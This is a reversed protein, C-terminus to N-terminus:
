AIDRGETVKLSIIVDDDQKSIQVVEKFDENSLNNQISPLAMSRASILLRIYLCGKECKTNILIADLSDVCDEVIQEFWEYVAIIMEAAYEVEGSYSFAVRAGAIRLYESSEMIANNLETSTIRGESKLLEMNCRRKIYAYIVAIRKINKEFGNEEALLTQVEELQPTVVEAMRDYIRSRAEIEAKEKKTQNESHLHANRSQLKESVERIESNLKNVASVDIATKVYGGSIAHKSIHYNRDNEDIEEYSHSTVIKKDPNEYIASAVKINSYISRYRSNSPIFGLEICMELFCISTFAFFVGINWITIGMFKPNNGTVGLVLYILQLVFPIVLLVAYKRDFSLCYSKIAIIVTSVILVLNWVYYLPLVIGYSYDGDPKFRFALEHLDNTLFLLVIVLSIVSVLTYLRNKHKIKENYGECSIMFLLRPVLTLPLYYAYWLFHSIGEHNDFFQYRLAQLAFFFVFLYGCTLLLTRIRKNVIREKVNCIWYIIACSCFLETVCSFLSVDIFVFHVAAAVFLAFLMWLLYAILRKHIYM